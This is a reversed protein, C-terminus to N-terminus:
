LPARERRGRVGAFRARLTAIDREADGTTGVPAGIALTRSGWDLAVPVIPVGARHAIHYFGTRWRAVRRRTGEPALGLVLRDRTAFEHVIAAVVNHSAGRDVPMGGLARMLAGFPRRFLTDKGLWLVDLQLALKAAIAIVFDWNSTHPAGIIVFKPLEPVDGAIRWGLLRLM